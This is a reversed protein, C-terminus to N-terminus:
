ITWITKFMAISIFNNPSSIKSYIYDSSCHTQRRTSAICSLIEQTQRYIKHLDVAYCAGSEQITSIQKSVWSHSTARSVRCRRIKRATTNTTGCVIRKGHTWYVHIVKRTHKWGIHIFLTTFFSMVSSVKSM